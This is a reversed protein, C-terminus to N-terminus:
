SVAKKVKQYLLQSALPLQIQTFTSILLHRLTNYNEKKNPTWLQNVGFHM